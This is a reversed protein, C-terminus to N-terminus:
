KARWKQFSKTSICHTKLFAGLPLRDKKVGYVVYEKSSGYSILFREQAGDRGGSYWTHMVLDNVM